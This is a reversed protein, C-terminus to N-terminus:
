RKTVETCALEWEVGNEDQVFVQREGGPYVRIQKKNIGRRQIEADFEAGSDFMFGIHALNEESGAIAANKLLAFLFGDGRDWTGGWYRRDASGDNIYCESPPTGFTLAYFSKREEYSAESCFMAVHFKKGM